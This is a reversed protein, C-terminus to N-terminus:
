LCHYHQHQHYYYHCHCYYHHCCRALILEQIVATLGDIRDWAIAIALEKVKVEVEM